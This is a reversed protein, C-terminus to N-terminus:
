VRDLEEIEEEGTQFIEVARKMSAAMDANDRALEALMGASTGLEQIGMGMEDAANRNELSLRRVNEVTQGITVSGQGLSESAGSLGRSTASLGGLAGLIEDGSQALSGLSDSVTALQITLDRIGDIVSGISKGSNASTESANRIAEVTGKITAGINRANEATSESLKRIEEAVVSFGRGADGAHAAEIAANMALLRTQEAIGNIIGVLELTQDAGAEMSAMSAVSGEISERGEAGLATVREAVERGSRAETALGRLSEAMTTILATARGAETEVKSVAELVLAAASRISTQAAEAEAASSDLKETLSRMSTVSASLEAIIAATQESSAALDGGSAASKEATVRVGVIISSFRRSLEAVARQISGIETRSNVVIASALDGQAIGTLARLVTRVSGSLNRAILGIVGICILLALASLGLSLGLSKWFLAMTETVPLSVIARWGHGFEDTLPSSSVFYQKDGVGIEKYWTANGASAASTADAAGSSAVLAVLPNASKAGEILSTGGEAQAAGSEAVVNNAADLIFASAGLPETTETLLKGIDALALQASLVGALAGKDDHVPVFVSQVLVGSLTDLHIDTSGPKDSTKAAQFWPSDALARGTGAAFALSSDAAKSLSVERGDVSAYHISSLGRIRGMLATFAAEEDRASAKLLLPRANDAFVALAALSSDVSAKMRADIEGATKWTISRSLSAIATRGAQVSGTVVTILTVTIVLILPLTLIVLLPISRIRQVKM